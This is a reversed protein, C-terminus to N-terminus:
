EVGREAEILGALWIYFFLALAILFRYLMMTRKYDESPDIVVLSLPKSLHSGNNVTAKALDNGAPYWEVYM